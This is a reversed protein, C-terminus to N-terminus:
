RDLTKQLNKAAISLFKKVMMKRSPVRQFANRPLTDRGDPVSGTRVIRRRVLPSLAM